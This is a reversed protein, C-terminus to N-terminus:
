GLHHLGAGWSAHKFEGARMAHGHTAAWHAVRSSMSAKPPGRVRRCSGRQSGGLGRQDQGVRCGVGGLECCGRSSGASQYRWVDFLVITPNLKM